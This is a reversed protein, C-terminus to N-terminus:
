DTGILLAASTRDLVGCASLTWLRSSASREHESDINFVPLIVGREGISEPGGCARDGEDTCAPDSRAFMDWPQGDGWPPCGINFTGFTVGRVFDSGGPLARSGLEGNLEQGSAFDSNSANVATHM